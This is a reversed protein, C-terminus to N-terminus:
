PAPSYPTTAASLWPPLSMDVTLHDLGTKEFLEAVQTETAYKEALYKTGMAMQARGVIDMTDTQELYFKTSKSWNGPLITGCEQNVYDSALEVYPVMKEKLDADATKTSLGIVSNSKIYLNGTADVAFVTKTLNNGAGNVVLVKKGDKDAYTNGSYSSNHDHGAIVMDIGSNYKIMSLIQNESNVGFEIDEPAAGDGLGSHYAVIVLDAGQEKVEAVYKEAEWAISGTTNDPHSFVIGPYNDPVDWRPCDTNEFGIIAIKYTKGNLTLEKFMYPTFVNEGTAEYYLNACLSEVVNGQSGDALYARVEEMLDWAYNFEHNGVTAADYGIEKMALAMPNPLDTQGLKQLSLQYSSVPTGQYTDGNDLLIVNDYSQRIEKVATAVNLMSNNTNTDNLVNKDWVRGHMDTTSLVVFEAATEEVAFVSLPAIGLLMALMCLLAISRRFLHKM